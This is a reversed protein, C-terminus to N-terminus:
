SALSGNLGTVVGIAITVLQHLYHLTRARCSKFRRLVVGLFLQITLLRRHARLEHLGRACEYRIQASDPM